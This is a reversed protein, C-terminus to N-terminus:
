EPYRLSDILRERMRRLADLPDKAGSDRIGLGVYWIIKTEYTSGPPDSPLKGIPEDDEETV